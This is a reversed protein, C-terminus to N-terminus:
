GWGRKREINEIVVKGFPQAEQYYRYAAVADEFPFVRDVVPKMGSASIAETMALFQARSGVAVARLTACSYFLTMPEVSQVEDAALFGVFAVEGGLAVSRLASALQGTVEVVRDAGRGGTLVRVQDAWDPTSTYDIVEHAGLQRLRAEKRQDGTTAIVRAGFYRAFQLAFLSVGGTGLTLVTEGPKFERGGMLANWATVGVCPLTSAEAYSLHEPIPVLADESLVALDKLLGDLTSGLQPLTELRPPGDLWLPFINAVVRDGEKVRTVGGGVAVVEGAGDSIPVIDPKVPLVYDGRLVMLERFSLSNARIAVLAEGRGPTPDPEERLELGDVGAGSHQLHFSQM